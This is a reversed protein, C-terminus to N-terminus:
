GETAWVEAPNTRNGWERGVPQAEWTTPDIYRDETLTPYARYGESDSTFIYETIRMISAGGNPNKIYVKSGLGFDVQYKYMTNPPVEGDISSERKHETLAEVGKQKLTSYLESSKAPLDNQMDDVVLMERDFSTLTSPNVVEGHADVIIYDYKGYVIALNMRDRITEVSSPNYLTDMDPDYVVARADTGTYAKAHLQGTTTNRMICFGLEYTDSMSKLADFVNGPGFGLELPTEDRPIPNDTYGPISPPWSISIPMVDDPDDTTSVIQQNIIKEMIQFANGTYVKQPYLELYFSDGTFFDTNSDGYTLLPRSFTVSCEEANVATAIRNDIIYRVQYSRIKQTQAPIDITYRGDETVSPPTTYPNILGGSENLLLFQIHPRISTSNMSIGTIDVSFKLPGKDFRFYSHVPTQWGYYKTATSGTTTVSSLTLTGNSGNISGKATSTKYETPSNEAKTFYPDLYYNTRQTSGKFVQESRSNHRTATWRYTPMATRMVSRRRFFWQTIDIGTFTVTTSGDDSMKQDRTDVIFVRNSESNAIYRGVKVPTTLADIESFVLEFDGEGNFREKQIYSVYSTILLDNRFNNDLLFIDM